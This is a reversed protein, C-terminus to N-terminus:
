SPSQRDRAVERPWRRMYERRLLAHNFLLSNVRGSVEAPLIAQSGPAGRQPSLASLFKPLFRAYRILTLPTRRTEQM